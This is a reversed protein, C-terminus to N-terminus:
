RHHVWANQPRLVEREICSLDQVYFAAITPSNPMRHGGVMVGLAHGGEELIVPAGSDGNAAIGSPILIWSNRWPPNDGYEMLAGCIMGTSIGSIAGFMRVQIPSHLAAPLDVIGKGNLYGLPQDSDVVAVDYGSYCHECMEGGCDEEPIRVVGAPEWHFPGTQREVICGAGCAAVHRATLFGRVENGGSGLRKVSFGPTGRIRKKYCRIRHMGPKKRRDSLRWGIPSRWLPEPPGSPLVVSEGVPFIRGLREQLRHSLFQAPLLSEAFESPTDPPILRMEFIQDLAKVDILTLPRAGLPTWAAGIGHVGMDRLGLEDLPRWARQEEYARAFHSIEPGNEESLWEM